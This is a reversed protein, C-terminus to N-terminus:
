VGPPQRREALAQKLQTAIRLLRTADEVPLPSHGPADHHIVAGLDRKDVPQGCAKCLYFHGLETDPPGGVREGFDFYVPEGM